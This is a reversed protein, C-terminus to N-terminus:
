KVDKIDILVANNGPTFENGKRLGQQILLFETETAINEFLEICIV